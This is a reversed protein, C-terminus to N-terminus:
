QRPPLLDISAATDAKKVAEKAHAVTQDLHKLQEELRRLEEANRKETELHPQPVTPTTILEEAPIKM